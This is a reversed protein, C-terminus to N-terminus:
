SILQKRIAQARELHRKLVPAAKEILDKLEPNQAADLAKTATAIVAQHYTVEYDIYSKDWTKGKSVANLSDMESKAQQESQDGAPAQPAVGLKKAALTAAALPPTTIRM